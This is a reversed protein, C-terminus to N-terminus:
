RPSELAARSYRSGASAALVRPTARMRRSSVKARECGRAGCATSTPSSTREM